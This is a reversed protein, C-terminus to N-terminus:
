PPAGPLRPTAAILAQTYPHAARGLESAPLAEVVSGLRMVLVRDCFRAVMDIDHSIMILGMGRRAVLDDLVALVENQVRADLASTAEDAILVEPDAALMVAIMARQGMGGSVEHPYARFVREPDRIKVADLLELARARAAGGGHIRVTEEIQRGITMVPDLAFRPDQMVMGIRRGRVASWGRPSLSLLDLEALRLRHATVRGPPRVLGMLARAAQTKGSGSAGVIGLRERGLSFSVGRVAELPGAPTAFHVHLDEVELVPATVASV